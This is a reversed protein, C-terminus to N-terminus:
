EGADAVPAAMASAEVGARRGLAGVMAPVVAFGFGLPRGGGPFRRWLCPLAALSLPTILAAGVGTVAGVGMVARAAIVADVSGALFALMLM